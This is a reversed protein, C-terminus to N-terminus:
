KEPIFHFFPVSKLPTERHVYGLKIVRKIIVKKNLSIGTSRLYFTYPSIVRDRSAINSGKHCLSRSTYRYIKVYCERNMPKM